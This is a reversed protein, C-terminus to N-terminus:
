GPGGTPRGTPPRYGGVAKDLESEKLEKPKTPTKHTPSKKAM